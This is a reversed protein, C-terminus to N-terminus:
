GDGWRLKLSMFYKGKLKISELNFYMLKSGFNFTLTWFNLGKLEQNTFSNLFLCFYDSTTNYSCILLSGINISRM